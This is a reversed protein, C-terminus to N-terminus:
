WAVDAGGRLRARARAHANCTGVERGGHWGYAYRHDPTDIASELVRGGATVEFPSWQSGPGCVGLVRPHPVIVLRWQVFRAKGPM